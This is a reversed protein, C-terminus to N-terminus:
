KAAPTHSLQMEELPILSIKELISRAEPIIEERGTVEITRIPSDPDVIVTTDAIHFTAYPGYNTSAEGARRIKLEERESDLMKQYGQILAFYFERPNREKPKFFCTKTM